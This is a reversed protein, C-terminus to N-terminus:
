LSLQAEHLEKQDGIQISSNTKLYQSGFIATKPKPWTYLSFLNPEKEGPLIRSKHGHYSSLFPILLHDPM